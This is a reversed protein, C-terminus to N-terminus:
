SPNIPNGRPSIVKINGCRSFEELHPRTYTESDKLREEFPTLKNVKKLSKSRSRRKAGPTAPAKELVMNSSELLLTVQSGHSASLSRGTAVIETGQPFDGVVIAAPVFM